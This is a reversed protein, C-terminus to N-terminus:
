ASLAFSAPRALWCYLLAAAHACLRMSPHVMSAPTCTCTFHWAHVDRIEVTVLFRQLVASSSEVANAGDTASGEEQTSISGIEVIGNLRAGQRFTSRVAGSRCYEQGQAAVALGAKTVIDAERLHQLVGPVIDYM